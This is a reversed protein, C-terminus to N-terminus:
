PQGRHHPTFTRGSIRGALQAAHRTKHIVRDGGEAHVYAEPITARPHGSHFLVGAMLLATAIPDRSDVSVVDAPSVTLQLATALQAAAAVASPAAVYASAKGDCGLLTWAGPTLRAPTLRFIM